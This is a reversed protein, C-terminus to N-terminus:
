QYICNLYIEKGEYSLKSTTTSFSKLNCVRRNCGGGPQYVKTSVTLDAKAGQETMMEYKEVNYFYDNSYTYKGTIPLSKRYDVLLGKASLNRDESVTIQIGGNDTCKYGALTVQSFLVMGLVAVSKYM